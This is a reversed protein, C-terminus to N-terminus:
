WLSSPVLSWLYYGSQDKISPKNDYIDTYSAGLQDIDLGYRMCIDDVAATTLTALLLAIVISLQIIMMMMIIILSVWQILEDKIFFAVSFSKSWIQYLSVFNYASVLMFSIVILFINLIVLEICALVWYPIFIKDHKLNQLCIHSDLQYSTVLWMHIKAQSETFVNLYSPQYSSQLQPLLHEM